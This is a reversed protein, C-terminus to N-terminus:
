RTRVRYYSTEVLCYSTHVLFSLFYDKPVEPAVYSFGCVQLVYTFLAPCVTGAQSVPSVSHPMHLLWMHGQIVLCLSFLERQASSVRPVLEGQLEMQLHPHSPERQVTIGAPSFLFIWFYIDHFMKLTNTENTEHETFSPKTYGASCPGIPKTLGASDCYFGGACPRCDEQSGLGSSNSWSGEPCASPATTGPSIFCFGLEVKWRRLVSFHWCM